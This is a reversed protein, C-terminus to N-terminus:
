SVAVHGNNLVAQYFCLSLSSASLVSSSLLCLPPSLRGKDDEELTVREASDFIESQSFHADREEEGKEEMGEEWKGGGGDMVQKVAAAGGGGEQKENWM